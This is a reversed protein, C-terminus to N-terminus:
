KDGEKIKPINNLFTIYIITFCLGGKGINVKIDIVSLENNRIFENVEKETYCIKIQKM